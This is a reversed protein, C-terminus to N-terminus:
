KYVLEPLVYGLYEDRTVVGNDNDEVALAVNSGWNNLTTADSKLRMPSDGVVFATLGRDNNLAVMEGILEPYGPAAMVNFLRSEDDRIDQNSNVMAQLAQIVLKVSHKVDLAVQETLKTLQNLLGVSTSLLCNWTVDGM